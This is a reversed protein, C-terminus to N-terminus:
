AGATPENGHQNYNGSLSLAVGSPALLVGRIIPIAGGHGGTFASGTINNAGATTEVPASRNGVLGAVEQTLTVVNASAQASIKLTSHANITSAIDSALQTGNRTNVDGATMIIYDENTTAGNNKFTLVKAVGSADVLSLTDDQTIGAVDDTAHKFITITTTAKTSQPQIGADSFITSGNSESMFCGLFYTQGMAVDALAMTAGAGDYAYQNHGLNGTDSRINPDGVVFGARTVTGNSNRKKGDGAGLVRIYTCSQANKLWQGVALPGFKEGDTNGFITQFESFNAVTIPVFAPGENSTGIVGAPTGVPQNKSPFTLDIERSSVGASKFVLEAM